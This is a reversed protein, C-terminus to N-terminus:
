FSFPSPPFPLSLPPPEPGAADNKVDDTSEPVEVDQKKKPRPMQKAAPRPMQKSAPGDDDSDAGARIIDEKMKEIAARV